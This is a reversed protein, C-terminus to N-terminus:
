GGRTLRPRHSHTLTRAFALSTDLVGGSPLAYVREDRRVSEVGRESAGLWASVGWVWDRCVLLSGLSGNRYGDALRM